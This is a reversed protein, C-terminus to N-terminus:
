HGILILDYTVSAVGPNNIRLTKASGSVTWGDIQGVRVTWIPVDESPTTGALWPAWPTSQNTKITLKVGTAPATLRLIFWAISSFSIATGLRSTLATLNLDDNSGPTLTRQAYWLKNAKNATTGDALSEAFTLLGNVGATITDPITSLSGTDTLTASITFDLNGSFSTSM